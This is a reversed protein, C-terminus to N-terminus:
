LGRQLAAIFAARKSNRIAAAERLEQQQAPTPLQSQTALREHLKFWASYASIFAQLPTGLAPDKQMVAALLQGTSEWEAYPVQLRTAASLAAFHLLEEVDQHTMFLSM